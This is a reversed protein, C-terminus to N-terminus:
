YTSLLGYRVGGDSVYISDRRAATCVEELLCAGALMYDAREPAVAAWRRREVPTSELLRDMWRRLQGRSIRSGHVQARDWKTMGREMAALTTVTGAVGILARPVAPWRVPALAEKIHSRMRALAQPRYRDTNLFRETLRVTGIELSVQMAMREDEGMVLETSGGGPDVVAVKGSPLSLQNRAGAWTLWAEEEGSVIRVRLGTQARVKELFARANLARRAGSTAVARVLWAPVGHQEAIRAYDVLVPTAREMRKPRLMGRDGVGHGLGVIRAEDHLVEGTESVVLLLITNTGIDITARNV